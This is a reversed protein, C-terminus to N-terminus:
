IFLHKIIVIIVILFIILYQRNCNLVAIFGSHNQFSGKLLSSLSLISERETAEQHQCM